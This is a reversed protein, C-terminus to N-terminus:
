RAEEKWLPLTSTCLPILSFLFLWLFFCCFVSPHLQQLWSPLLCSSCVEALFTTIFVATIVIIAVSISKDTNLHLWCHHPFLGTLVSTSHQCLAKKRVCFMKQIFAKWAVATLFRKAIGTTWTNLFSTDPAHEYRLLFSGGDSSDGRTEKDTQPCKEWLIPFNVWEGHLARLTKSLNEQTHTHVIAVAFEKLSYNKQVNESILMVYRCSVILGMLWPPGHMLIHLLLTLLQNQVFLLPTFNQLSVLRCYHQKKQQSRLM